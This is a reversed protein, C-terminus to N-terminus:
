TTLCSRQGYKPGSTKGAGSWSKWSSASRVLEAPDKECIHTPERELTDGVSVSIPVHANEITFTDTPAKRQNKDGYAEIDYLITHPYSQMQPRPLEVDIEGVECAWAEIVRYGAKRLTKTRKLTAIFRDERTQENRDIIKNRDNPYCKRCRRRFCGHYQYATRTKPDYGDVPFREVFREGGHGCMAHHIHIKRRKAEQDLWRLSQKSASHKPYFAKEFAIQPAEVKEGPCDIITKGQCCTQSHSQLNCAKTFRAYCHTCAYTKM